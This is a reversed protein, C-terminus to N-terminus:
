VGVAFLLVWMLGAAQLFRDHGLVTEPASGRGANALLAYRLLALTFPILSGSRLLGVDQHGRQFAWQAYTALALACAVGATIRLFEPTYEELVGRSRGAESDLLDALRKGAAVLLAAFFVVLVFWHSIGIHAATGGAVARLLFCGAVCAIDAVAIRRLWLTYALNLALYAGAILLLVPSVVLAFLLGLTTAGAALGLAAPPAIAGSAVPRHRKRPHRRDEAADRVDNFAYVGSALLCFATFGIISRGLVPGRGLM